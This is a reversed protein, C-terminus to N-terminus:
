VFIMIYVWYFLYPLVGRVPNRVAVVQESDRIRRGVVVEGANKCSVLM